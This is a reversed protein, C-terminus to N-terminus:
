GHNGEEVKFNRAQLYYEKPIEISVAATKDQFKGDL